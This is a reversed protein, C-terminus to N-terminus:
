QGARVIAKQAEALSAKPDEGQIIGKSLARQVPTWVRRMHPRNSLAVTADVQKRFALAVPDKLTNYAAKTAVLQKGTAM